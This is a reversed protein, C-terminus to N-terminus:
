LKTKETICKEGTRANEKKSYRELNEIADTKGSECNKCLEQVTRSCFIKRIVKM